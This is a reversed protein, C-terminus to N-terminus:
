KEPQGEAQRKALEDAVADDFQTSVKRWEDRVQPWVNPDSKAIAVLKEAAQSLLIALNIVDQPKIDM